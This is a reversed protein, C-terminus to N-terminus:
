WSGDGDQEDSYRLWTEAKQRQRELILHAIAINAPLESAGLLVAHAKREDVDLRYLAALLQEPNKQTLELVRQALLEILEEETIFDPLALNLDRRTLQVITALLRKDQM